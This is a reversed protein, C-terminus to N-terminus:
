VDALTRKEQPGEHGSAPWQEVFEALAGLPLPRSYLYGQIFHCGHAVLWEREELTEVGEAVFEVPRVRQMSLITEVMAAKAPQLDLGSVFSRDIKIRDVPLSRLYSLSSFGTGFDDLALSINMERLTQMKRMALDLNDLMLNETIELEIGGPPYGSASLIERLDSVFVTSYFHRPSINVAVHNVVPQRPGLRLAQMDSIARRITWTGIAEILGAEEAFGIFSDPGLMGRKPHEWRILAEVGAIRNLRADIKPQYHLVFEERELARRIDSVLQLRSSVEAEMSPRFFRVTNRGGSKARNMAIDGHKLLTDATADGNPYLAVGISPTLTQPMGEVLVPESLVGGVSLALRHALAAAKGEEENLKDLVIAFEDGGLRAVLDESRMAHSLRDALTNLVQDGAKHGLADNVTKFHDLDIVLLAGFFGRRAASEVATDLETILLRRNPLGTLDDFFAQRRVHEEIERRLTIDRVFGTFLRRGGVVSDSVSLEIPFVSGDRRMAQMERLKGIVHAEHGRLYRSIHGPHVTRDKEPMLLTLPQGLLEDEKWGFIREAAANFSEIAGAENIMVIGDSATRLVAQLRSRSDEEAARRALVTDQLRVALLVAFLAVTASLFFAFLGHQRADSVAAAIVGPPVWAVLRWHRVPEALSTQLRPFNLLQLSFFGSPTVASARERLGLASAALPFRRDFFDADSLGPYMFAWDRGPDPALVFQGAENVLLLRSPGKHQQNRVLDVLRRAEYNLVLIGVIGGARDAIAKGLRLMPREPREIDGHEVNLDLPSVYVRGPGAALTESVYYRDAKDQLRERPVLEFGGASMDVRVTERGEADLLRVQQYIRKASAFFQLVAEIEALQGPAAPDSYGAVAPHAALIRLDRALGELEGVSASLVADVRAQNAAQLDAFAASKAEAYLYFALISAAILALAWARLVRSLWPRASGAPPPGPEHHPRSAAASGPEVPQTVGGQM